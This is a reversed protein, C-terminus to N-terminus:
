PFTNGISYIAFIYLGICILLVIRHAPTPLPAPRAMKTSLAQEISRYAQRAVCLMAVVLALRQELNM